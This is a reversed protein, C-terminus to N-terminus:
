NALKPDFPIVHEQCKSCRCLRNGKYPSNKSEGLLYVPGHHEEGNRLRLGTWSNWLAADVRVASQGVVIELLDGKMMTDDGAYGISHSAIFSVQEQVDSFFEKGM